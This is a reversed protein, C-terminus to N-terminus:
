AAVEQELMESLRRPSAGAVAARQSDTLGAMWYDITGVSVLRYVTVQHVRSVRHIRAELQEDRDSIWPIDLIVMDDAADLTISEGGADRNLCVVQLSDDPDQFREVIRMRDKDSTRGTLTAVEFGEKRLVEAALEVVETFSSAVVFKIGTDEREQAFEILWDLKNSPLVPLLTRGEGRKVAATALQRRRTIEALIGTATFRTGDGLTLEADKLMQAYLRAQASPKGDADAMELQVYRPSEPDSADIPTGAYLIAPLDPAADAKTRKLYYPRLMNDWAQPDRPELVAEGDGIQWYQGSKDVGFYTEAWKWFSGFVDPRLFNLTGWGKELKSRFPTGSMAIALGNPALCRRLRIAGFRQLTIRKSQVNATSALLNHSEDLIIADWTRSFLFPWKYEAEYYHKPHLADRQWEPVACEGKTLPCTEVKKARVMEINIVLMKRTGAITVPHDSYDDFAKQRQAPTGQAVFVAIGPAWRKTEKEWVTRTATRRCAVIIERADDQICAALAQLTKGLGPDDGLIVQRGALMFGTGSIQYKRDQMARFLRPAEREVRGLDVADIAEERLTELSRVRSVEERSWRVLAPLVDLEQGFVRRFAFCTEMSLPYSWHLFVDREGTKDWVAKCHPILHALRSGEKYKPEIRAQIAKGDTTITAHMERDRRAQGTADPSAELTSRAAQV